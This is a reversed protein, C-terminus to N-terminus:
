IGMDSALPKVGIEPLYVTDTAAAYAGTAVGMSQDAIVSIPRSFKQAILEQRIANAQTRNYDKGFALEFKQWFTPQLAFNSLATTASRLAQQLNDTM